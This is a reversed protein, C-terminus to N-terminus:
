WGMINKVETSIDEARMFVEGVLVANIGLIKLFLIDQHSKIGSEAVIIKEPPILYILKETTKFDVELTDLDRNNIGIIPSKLNLARKLGKENHVEVLCDLGVSEALTLITKMSDNTLADAIVLIADAGFARSEFVQYPDIIFDKRLVPIDVAERVTRLDELSGAFFVEETLVSIAAAGAEKYIRATKAVDIYPRIAGCSPSAKKIEAILNIRKPRSIAEKFGLTPGMDAIKEKLQEESFIRKREVLKQKKREIIEKLFNQKM